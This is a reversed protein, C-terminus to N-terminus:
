FLILWCSGAIVKCDWIKGNYSHLCKLDGFEQKFLVKVDQCNWDGQFIYYSIYNQSNQRQVDEGNQLGASGCRPHKKLRDRPSLSPKASVFSKDIEIIYQKYMVKM